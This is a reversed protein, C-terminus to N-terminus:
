IIRDNNHLGGIDFIFDWSSDEDGSYVHGVVVGDERPEDLFQVVDGSVNRSETRLVARVNLGDQLLGRVLHHFACAIGFLIEFAFKGLKSM